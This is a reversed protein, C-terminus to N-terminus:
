WRVVGDVEVGDVAPDVEGAAAFGDGGGEGVEGGTGGGLEL